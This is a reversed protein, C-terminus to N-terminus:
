KGITIGGGPDGSGSTLTSKAATVFTLDRRERDYRFGLRIVGERTSIVGLHSVIDESMLLYGDAGNRAVSVQFGEGVAPRNTLLWEVTEPKGRLYPDNSLGDRDGTAIATAIRDTAARVESM